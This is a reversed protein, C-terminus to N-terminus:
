EHSVEIYLTSLWINFILSLFISMSLEFLLSTDLFSFFSTISMLVMTAATALCIFRNKQFLIKSRAFSSWFPQTPADLIIFPVFLYFAMVIVGPVIFASIAPLLIFGLLAAAFGLFLFGAKLLRFVNILEVSNGPRRQIVLYTLGSSIASFICFLPYIFIVLFGPSDKESLEWQKQILTTLGEPIQCLLLYMWLPSSRRILAWHSNLCYTM